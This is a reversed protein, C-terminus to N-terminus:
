FILPKDGAKNSASTPTSKEKRSSPSYLERMVPKLEKLPMEIEMESTFYPHNLAGDASIRKLPDKELMKALLDLTTPPIKSYIEKNFTFDCARNQTL